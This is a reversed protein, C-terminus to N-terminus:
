KPDGDRQEQDQHSHGDGGAHKGPPNFGEDAFLRHFVQALPEVAIDFDAREVDGHGNSRRESHQQAAAAATYRTHGGLTNGQPVFM